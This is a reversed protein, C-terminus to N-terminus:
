SSKAKRAPICEVLEGDPQQESPLEMFGPKPEPLAKVDGGALVSAASSRSDEEFSPLAGTEVKVGLNNIIQYGGSSAKTLGGIEFQLKRDDIGEPTMAMAVSAQMVGPRGFASILLALDNARTCVAALMQGLLDMPQVGARVCLDQLSCRAAEEGMVEVTSLFTRVKEDDSLACADM